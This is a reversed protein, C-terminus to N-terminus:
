TVPSVTPLSCHFRRQMPPKRRWDRVSIHGDSAVMLSWIARPRYTRDEAFDSM